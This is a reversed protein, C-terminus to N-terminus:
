FFLFFVLLLAAACCPERYRLFSAVVFFLGLIRSNGSNLKWVLSNGATKRGEESGVISSVFGGRELAASTTTTTLTECEKRRRSLRRRKKRGVFCWLGCIGAQWDGGFHCNSRIGLQRLGQSFLFVAFLFLLPPPNAFQSVLVSSFKGVLLFSPLCPLCALL